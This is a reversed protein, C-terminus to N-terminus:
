TVPIKKGAAENKVKEYEELLRKIKAAPIAFAINEAGQMMAMNVGVLDGNLNVLAGGSSGLNSPADTQILDTFTLNAPNVTM